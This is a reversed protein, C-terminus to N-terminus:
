EVEYSGDGTKKVTKKGAPPMHITANITIDPMKPQAAPKPEAKKDAAADAKSDASTEAADTHADAAIQATALKVKGDAEAKEQALKIALENKERAIQLELDMKEREIQMKHALEAAAQEMKADIEALVQATRAEIEAIKEEPNNSAAIKALEIERNIEIERAKIKNQEEAIALKGMVEIKKVEQEGEAIIQAESKQPPPPPPNFNVPHVAYYSESDTIGQAKLIEHRTHLAQGVTIAPNGPGYAAMLADQDQKIGILTTLKREETNGLAVNVTCDMDDDWARPDIKIYKGRLRVLREAPQNESLLQAIGRFAPKLCTEVYIRAILEVQMKNSAIAAAAADPTTSQLADMDLGAAGKVVGTREEKTQKMFELFPFIKDGSFQHVFPQLVDGPRGKTRIGAGIETNQLDAVSVQGDQYATRPYISASLSDLGSRVLCSNIKQLDMTRDAVSRGILAHPEPYPSFIGFPRASIVKNKSPIIWPECGLTAVMRLESYGDGNFDVIVYNEIYDHKFNEDGPAATETVATEDPQREIEEPNTDLTSYAGGHEDIEDETVGLDLLEGRTKKMRHAMFMTGYQTDRGQRLVLLEEPPVSWVRCRGTPIQVAVELSFADEEHPQPMPPPQQGAQQAAMAGEQWAAQDEPTPYVTIQDDEKVIMSITSNEDARLADIEDQTVHRLSFHKVCHDEWGWKIIGTKKVLGDWLSDYVIQFGPNDREFVYRVYDTKQESQQIADARTPDFEVYHRPGTFIRMLDPMMASVSDAVDTMVVQSRGPEENGFPQGKFYQHARAREPSLVSDVYTISDDQYSRLIAALDELDMAGKDKRPGPYGRPQKEGEAEDAQDLATM